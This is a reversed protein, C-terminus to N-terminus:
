LLTTKGIMWDRLPLSFNLMSAETNDAKPSNLKSATIRSELPCKIAARVEDVPMIKSNPHIKYLTNAQYNPDMKKM